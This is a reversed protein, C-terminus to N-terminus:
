EKPLEVLEILLDEDLKLNHNTVNTPALNELPNLKKLYLDLPIIKNKTNTAQEFPLKILGMFQEDFVVDKM